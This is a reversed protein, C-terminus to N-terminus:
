SRIARSCRRCWWTGSCRARSAAYGTARVQAESSQDDSLARTLYLQGGWMVLVLALLSAAVGFRMWFAAPRRSPPTEPAAETM